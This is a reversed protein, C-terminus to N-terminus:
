KSVRRIEQGSNWVSQMSIPDQFKIHPILTHKGESM